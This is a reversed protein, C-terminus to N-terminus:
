HQDKRRTNREAELVDIQIAILCQFTHEVPGVKGETQDEHHFHYQFPQRQSKGFVKSTEPRYEIEDYHKYTPILISHYVM